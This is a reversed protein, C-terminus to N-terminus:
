FLLFIADGWVVAWIKLLKGFPTRSGNSKGVPIEPKGMYITLVGHKRAFAWRTNWQHKYLLAPEWESGGSREFRTECMTAPAFSLRSNECPLRNWSINKIQLCKGELSLINFKGRVHQMVQMTWSLEPSLELLVMTEIKWTSGMLETGTNTIYDSISKM